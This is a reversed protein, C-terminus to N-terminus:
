QYIKSVLSPKTDCLAVYHIFDQESFYDDGGHQYTRDLMPILAPYRDKLKKTDKELQNKVANVTKETINKIGLLNESYNLLNILHSCSNSIKNLDDDRMSNNNLLDCVNNKHQTLTQVFKLMPSNDKLHDLINDSLETHIKSLEDIESLYIISKLKDLNDRDTLNKVKEKIFDWISIWNDNKLAINKFSSNFGYIHIDHGKDDTLLGLTKACGLVEGMRGAGSCQDPTEEYKPNVLDRKFMIFYIGGLSTDYDVEQLQVNGYYSVYSMKYLKRVPQYDREERPEPPPEELESTYKINPCGHLQAIIKPFYKPDVRFLYVTGENDEFNHQITKVYAKLKVDELVIVTNESIHISPSTSQDPKYRQSNKLDYDYNICCTGWTDPIKKRIKKGNKHKRPNGKYDTEYVPKGEKDVMPVMDFIEVKISRDDIAEGQWTVHKKVIDRLTGSGSIKSNNLWKKYTLKAEWLTKCDKLLDKFHTPLDEMVKSVVAVINKQTEKDYNLEERSATINLEGLPFIIDMPVYKLFQHMLPDLDLDISYPSIPYAVNGQIAYCGQHDSYRWENDDERLKYTDTEFAYSILSMDIENGKFKPLVPFRHFVKRAKDAFTNFDSENVPMYVELGNPENSEEEGLLTIAPAGGEDVYASYVRKMGGFVSTVTFQDVYAFPSKSGLGLCGIYDNSDNKTSDFYTTYLNMVDDHSLGIGFDKIAFWPEFSNPLHVEFPELQNDAAVHADYANCGLERVVALIKDSYINSSLIEFAKANQKIKFNQPASKLGEAEVERKETNLKM